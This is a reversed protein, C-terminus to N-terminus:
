ASLTGHAAPSSYVVSSTDRCNALWRGLASMSVLYLLSAAFAIGVVTLNM